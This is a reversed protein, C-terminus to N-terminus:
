HFNNYYIILSNNYDDFDILSDYLLYLFDENPFYRFLEDENNRKENYISELLLLGSDKFINKNYEVTNDSFIKAVKKLYIKSTKNYRFKAYIIHKNHKKIIIFNSDSHHINYVKYKDNNTDMDEIIHLKDRKTLFPQNSFSHKVFENLRTEILISYFVDLINNLQIRYIKDVFKYKKIFFKNSIEIFYIKDNFIIYLSLEKLNKMFVQFLKESVIIKDINIIIKNDKVLIKKPIKSVLKIDKRQTLEIMMKDEEIKFMFRSNSFINNDFIIRDFSEHFDIIPQKKYDFHNIDIENYLTRCTYSFNLISEYDLYKCIENYIDPYLYSVLNIM